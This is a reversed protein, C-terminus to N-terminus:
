LLLRCLQEARQRLARGAETDAARLARYERRHLNELALGALEVQRRIDAAVEEGRQRGEVDAVGHKAVAQPEGGVRGHMRGHRSARLRHHAIAAEPMVAERGADGVMDEVLVVADEDDHLVAVAGRGARLLQGGRRLMALHLFVDAHLARELADADAPDLRHVVVPDTFHGLRQFFRHGRVVLPQLDDDGLALALQLPLALEAWLHRFLQLLARAVHADLVAHVLVGARAIVGANAEGAARRERDLVVRIRQTGIRHRRDDVAADAAAQAALVRVGRHEAWREIAGFDDLVRRPPVLQDRPETSR